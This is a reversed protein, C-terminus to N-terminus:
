SGVRTQSRCSRANASCVRACVGGFGENHESQWVALCAALQKFEQSDTRTYARTHMHACAVCVCVWVCVCVCVDQVIRVHAQTKRQRHVCHGTKPTGLHLPPIIPPNIDIRIFCVSGM